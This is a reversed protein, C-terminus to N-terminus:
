LDLSDSYNFILTVKTGEDVKSQMSFKGGMLEILRKTLPLGLGTGAYKKSLKNDIQGFSTLAKPIDQDKIGIGTDAITIFVLMKIADKSISVSVEGNPPTFKVANSLLNLLAQKLRKPDAKIIVREQPLNQTIKVLCQDARPKVFRISSSAIKNLDVEVYDVQLKDASAKSFDLIDNIVALLHKGSNNIDKIYDKYVPNHLKGANESLIIESFGIIASLPTRLEHSVNALFYTKASNEVEARIKAAVLEKNIQEQKNIIKQAYNTNHMIIMFFVLFVGILVLLIKQEVYIVNGLQNTIDHTIEMVCDIVLYNSAANIIPIYSTLLARDQKTGHKDSVIKQTTFSHVAQGKFAHVMPNQVFYKSLFYKDLYSLIKSYYGAEVNSEQELSQHDFNTIIKQGINDYLTIEVPVISFLSDSDKIFNIFELNQLFLKYNARSIKQTINSHRNWIKEKYISVIRDSEVMAQNLIAEEVVFYRYLVINAMINLFLGVFSLRTIHKNQIM